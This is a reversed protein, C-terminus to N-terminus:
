KPLDETPTYDTIDREVPVPMAPVVTEHLYTTDMPPLLKAAGTVVDADTPKIDKM